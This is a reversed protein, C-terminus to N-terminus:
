ALKEENKQIVTQSLFICKHFIKITGMGKSETAFFDIYSQEFIDM